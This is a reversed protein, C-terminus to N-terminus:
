ARNAGMWTLLGRAYQKAQVLRMEPNRHGGKKADLLSELVQLRDLLVGCARRFRVNRYSLRVNLLVLVLCVIFLAITM